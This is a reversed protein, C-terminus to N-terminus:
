WKVKNRNIGRSVVVPHPDIAKIKSKLDMKLNTLYNSNPFLKSNNDPLEIHLAVKIKKVSLCKKATDKEESIGAIYKAAFVGALTDRTKLAVELALNILKTRRHNRYDKIEILWLIKEITDIALIDVAKQGDAIKQFQNRYYAWNDYKSVIWQDPFNLEVGDIIM